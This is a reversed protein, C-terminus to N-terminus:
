RNATLISAVRQRAYTSLDARIRQTQLGRSYAQLAQQPLAQEDLVIALGVWWDGRGPDDALWQQYSGQAREFNRNQRAALALLEYYATYQAVPPQRRLLLVHARDSRATSMLLRADIQLLGIHAPNLQRQQALLSTVQQYHQQSLLLSALLTASAPSNAQRQLQELLLEEADVNAGSRILAAGRRAVSQDRQAPSLSRSMKVPGTAPAVENASSDIRQRAEGAV